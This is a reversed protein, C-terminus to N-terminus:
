RRSRISIKSKVRDIVDHLSFPKQFGSMRFSFVFFCFTLFKKTRQGGIGLREMTFIELFLHLIKAELRTDYQKVFYVFSFGILALSPFVSFKHSLLSSGALWGALWRALGSAPVVGGYHVDVMCHVLGPFGKSGM